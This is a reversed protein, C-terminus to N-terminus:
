ISPVDTGGLNVTVPLPCDAPMEDWGGDTDIDVGPVQCYGYEGGSRFPCLECGKVEVIRMLVGCIM